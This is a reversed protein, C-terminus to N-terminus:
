KYKKKSNNRFVGLWEQNLKKESFEIRLAHALKEVYSEIPRLSLDSQIISDYVFRAAFITLFYEFSGRKYQNTNSIKTDTLFKKKSNQKGIFNRKLFLHKGCFSCFVADQNEKILELQEQSIRSHCNECHSLPPKNPNTQIM